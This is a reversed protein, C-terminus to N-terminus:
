RVPPRRPCCPSPSRDPRDCRLASRRRAAAHRPADAGPQGRPVRGVPSVRGHPVVASRQERASARRGQRVQDDVARRLAAHGLARPRRFAAPPGERRAAEPRRSRGCRPDVPFSVNRLEVSVSERKSITIDMAVLGDSDAKEVDADLITVLAFHRLVRTPRERGSALWGALHPAVSGPSFRRM